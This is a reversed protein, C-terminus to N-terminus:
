KASTSTGGFDRWGAYINSLPVAQIWGWSNDLFMTGGVIVPNVIGYRGGGAVKGLQTGNAPNLAYLYPGAALWLINHYYVASGRGAGAPGANPIKFTWLIAGTQENMAYFSSTIPSGVYVVGNHIMSVGAKYAPPVPGRGLNQQWLIAGTTANTAWVELDSTKAGTTPDVQVGVVSDQVAINNTTDVSPSNDGMGTNAVGPVTQKWVVNGTASNLAYVYNPDSFGVLVNNGSVAVSSMSDFGGVTTKWVKAGTHLNLAYVHGGGTGEIVMGNTYAPAAMDEGITPVRWLPQGTQANYAYIAAYGLGRVAPKHAAYKQVASFSFGTDGTSAVVVGDVVIPNGMFANDGHQQWLLHGTAADVAYVYGQDSEAYVIGKVVTVGVSNGIFQTTKVPAARLGLTSQDYAPGDLPLAGMEAFNWSYGQQLGHASAPATFGPNHMSNSAYMTWQSPYASAMGEPVHAGSGSDAAFAAGSALLAVSLGATATITAGRKTFRKKM